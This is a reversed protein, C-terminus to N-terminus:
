LYLGGHTTSDVLNLLVYPDLGSAFCCNIFTFPHDQNIDLLWERAEQQMKKSKRRDFLEDISSTILGYQLEKIEETTWEDLFVRQAKPLVGAKNSSTTVNQM